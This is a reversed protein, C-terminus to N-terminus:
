LYDPFCHFIDRCFQLASPVTKYDCIILQKLINVQNQETTSIQLSLRGPSAKVCIVHDTAQFSYEM